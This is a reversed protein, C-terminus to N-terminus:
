ANLLEPNEPLRDNLFDFAYEIGHKIALFRSTLSEDELPLQYIEDFESMLGKGLIKVTWWNPNDIPDVLIWIGKQDLYETLIVFQLPEHLEEFYKGHIILKKTYKNYNFKEHKSAWRIFADKQNGLDM